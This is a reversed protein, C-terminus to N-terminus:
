FVSIQYIINVRILPVCIYVCWRVCVCVFLIFIFIFFSINVILFVDYIQVRFIANAIFYKTKSLDYVKLVVKKIGNGIETTPKKKIM